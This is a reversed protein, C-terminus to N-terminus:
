SLMFSSLLSILSGAVALYLVTQSTYLTFTVKPLPAFVILIVAKSSPPKDISEKFTFQYVQM